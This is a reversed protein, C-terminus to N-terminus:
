RLVEAYRARVFDLPEAEFLESRGPPGRPAADQRRQAGLGGPAGAAWRARAAGGGPVRRAARPDRPRDAARGGLSEGGRHPHRARRPRGRALLADLGAALGCLMGEVAARALHAPTATQSALGHVAGTAFPRNPTREGELYPVVVLGDPARPRRRARARLVRSTSASCALRRGSVRAANLTCVLPLFRGTADAFGAVDRDPRGVPHDCVAFVTGSTGISVVVDGPSALCRAGRRRQGRDRM